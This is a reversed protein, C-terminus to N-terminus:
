RTSNGPSLTKPKVRKKEKRKGLKGWGGVGWKSRCHVLDFISALKPFLYHIMCLCSVDTEVISKMLDKEDSYVLTMGTVFALM